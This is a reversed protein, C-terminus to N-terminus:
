ALEQVLSRVFADLARLEKARQELLQLPEGIHLSARERQPEEFPMPTWADVTREFM